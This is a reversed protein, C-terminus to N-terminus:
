GAEGKVIKLHIRREVEKEFVEEPIDKLEFELAKRKPLIYQAAEKAAQVRLEPPIRDVFVASGDKTVKQMEPSKYGLEEWKEGAFLLLIEFPDIGLEKAKAQADMKFQNPSGLRSGM